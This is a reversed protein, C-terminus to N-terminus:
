KPSFDPDLVVKPFPHSHSAQFSKTEVVFAMYGPDLQVEEAQMYNTTLQCTMTGTPSVIILM